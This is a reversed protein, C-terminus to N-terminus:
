DLTMRSRASRVCFCRLCLALFSYSRMRPKRSSQVMAFTQPGRQQNVVLNNFSILTSSLRICDGGAQPDQTGGRLM